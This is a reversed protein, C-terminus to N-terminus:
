VDMEFRKESVNSKAEIKGREAQKLLRQIYPGLVDVDTSVYEEGGFRRINKTQEALIRADQSFIRMALPKLFPVVLVGPIPLKFSVAAFLHTVFDEVPTLAATVCLHTEGLRYEVQVISPLIFRDFHEVVGGKPALLKGVIGTPRPEGVYEAEVRDHARRVVVEIRNRPRDDSRFLGSHLFATHPVDLANEAAAHLTSQAVVRDRVTTYGPKRALEFPFPEVDPASERSAWMWVFGDQERCPFARADRARAEARGCLAPVKRCVGGTDFSWGHYGCELLGDKTVRGLSLPVNRHPCRDLLVSPVGGQGRFLVLPEGFLTRQIPAEGLEESRCLVYWAKTIRAVSTAGKIEPESQV